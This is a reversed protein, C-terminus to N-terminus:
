NVQVVDFLLSYNTLFCILEYIRVHHYTLKYWIKFIYKSKIWIIKVYLEEFLIYLIMKNESFCSLVICPSTKM